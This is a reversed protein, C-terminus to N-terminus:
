IIDRLRELGASQQNGNRQSDAFTSGMPALLIATVATFGAARRYLALLSKQISSKMTSNNPPVNKDGPLGMLGTKYCGPPSPTVFRHFKPTSLREIGRPSGEM